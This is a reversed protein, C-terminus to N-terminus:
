GRHSPVHDKGYLRQISLMVDLMACAAMKDREAWTAIRRLKQVLEVDVADRSLAADPLLVDVLVGLARAVKILAGVPIARHGNEYLALRGQALNARGALDRQTWGRAGRLAKIRDGLLVGLPASDRNGAATSSVM